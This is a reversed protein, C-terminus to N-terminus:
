ILEEGIIVTTGKTNDVEYFPISKVDVNKKMVKDKTELVQETPKPTVEYSGNYFDYDKSSETIVGFNVDFSLTDLMGFELTDIKLEISDLLECLNIDIKNM